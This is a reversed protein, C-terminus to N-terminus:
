QGEKQMFVLAIRGYNRKDIIRFKENKNEFIEIIKKQIDLESELIIVSSYKLINKNYLNNLISLYQELTYSYPPDIYIYDIQINDKNLIEIGREFSTNFSKITGDNKVKNINKKIINFNTKDIDFIYVTKAGRSYAELGIGGFGGFADVFVSETVNNSLINFVNEKVRDLTPRVNTENSSELKLGRKKGSIIRM